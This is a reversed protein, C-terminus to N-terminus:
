KILCSQGKDKSPLQLNQPSSNTARRESCIRKADPLTLTANSSSSLDAMENNSASRKMVSRSSERTHVPGISNYEEEEYHWTRRM